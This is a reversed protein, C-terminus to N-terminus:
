MDEPAFKRQLWTGPRWTHQIYPQTSLRTAAEQSYSVTTAPMETPSVTEADAQALSEDADDADLGMSSDRRMRVIDPMLQSVPFRQAVVRKMQVADSLENAVPASGAISDHQRYASAASSQQGIPVTPRDLRNYRAVLTGQAPDLKRQLWAVADPRPSLQLVPRPSPQAEVVSSAADSASSIQRSRQQ